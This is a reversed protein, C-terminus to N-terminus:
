LNGGAFKWTLDVITPTPSFSTTVNKARGSPTFSLAGSSAALNWQGAPPQTAATYGALDIASGSLPTLSLCLVNNGSAADFSTAGVLTFPAVSQAQLSSVHVPVASTNTLSAQVGSVVGAPSVSLPMSTPVTVTINASVLAHSSVIVGSYKGSTDGASAYLYKGYDDATLTYSPGTSVQSGASTADAARYWAWSLSAGTSVGTGSATLSSGVLYSGSVSVTGALTQSSPNWWVYTDALSGTYSSSLNAATYATGKPLWVSGSGVARWQTYPTTPTPLTAKSVTGSGKFSWNAGLNVQRLATCGTFMATMTSAKTSTVGSLDLSALATCNYFLYTMNTAAAGFGSPLVLSALKSCGYFMYGVTTSAKGLGSPLSVSTLGSCNYFMYSIDGAAQGFATPLSVSTLVTCGYFMNKATTAKSGFGAPLSVSALTTCGRFMSSTDADLQGFGADLTLSTLKTCGYFTSATSTVSQGFGASIDASTLASGYFWNALSSPHVDASLSLTKISARNSYWPVSSTSSYVDTVAGSGTVSFVGDSSISWAAKPNSPFTGSAVVTAAALLSSSPTASSAADSSAPGINWDSPFGFTVNKLETIWAPEDQSEATNSSSAAPAASQRGIAGTDSTSSESSTSSSGSNAQAAGTSSSSSGDASSLTGATSASSASQTGADSQAGFAPVAWVTLLVGLAVAWVRKCTRLGELRELRTSAGVGCGRLGAGNAQKGV